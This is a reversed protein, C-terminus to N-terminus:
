LGLNKIEDDNLGLEDLLGEDEIVNLLHGMEDRVTWTPDVTSDVPSDLDFRKTITAWRKRVNARFAADDAAREEPTMM